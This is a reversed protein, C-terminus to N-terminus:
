WYCSPMRVQAIGPTGSVPAGPGVAVLRGSPEPIAVEVLEPTSAAVHDPDPARDGGEAPPTGGNASPTGGEGPSGTSPAPLSTTTVTPRLGNLREVSRRRAAEIEAPSGSRRRFLSALM